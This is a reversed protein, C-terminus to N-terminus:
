ELKQASLREKREEVEMLSPFGQPGYTELIFSATANGYKGAEVLSKSKLLGQLFGATFADGAGTSDVVNVDEATAIDWVTNATRSFVM